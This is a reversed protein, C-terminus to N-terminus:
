WSRGKPNERNWRDEGECHLTQRRKMAKIEGESFLYRASAARAVEGRMFNALMRGEESTEFKLESGSVALLARRGPALWAGPGTGVM